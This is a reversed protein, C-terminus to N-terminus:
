FILDVGFSFSKPVPYGMLNTNEPDFLENIKTLTWLNNTTVYVRARQIKLNSVINDHLSYGFTVQKLRIYAANQLYLTSPERNGRGGDIYPKPLKANISEPTWFDLNAKMPVDWQSNIGFFRGSIWLDRKGVGQFFLNCDFNKWSINSRFGFQLRPTSNGIISLDGPNNLTNEGWSIEGDGNIDIYKVDGPNWTGGYIKTQDAHEEIEKETQFLGNSKYGWIEGIKHGIYYNNIEGTPNDFETIKSQSDSINFSFNFGVDQFNYRGEFIM